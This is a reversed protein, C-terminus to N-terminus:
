AGAVNKPLDVTSETGDTWDEVTAEFKVESIGLIMKITYRKGADLSDFEVNHSIVNKVSSYTAALNADKTVVHYTVKVNFTVKAPATPTVPILTYYKSDKIVDVDADAGNDSSAEYIVGPVSSAPFSNGDGYLKTNINPNEITLGQEGTFAVVNEWKAKPASAPSGVPETNNLNLDGTENLDNSTIEVKEILIKTINDGGTEQERSGPTSADGAPVSNIAALARVRLQALAHYFYFHIPTGIAPKQLNLYPLYKTPTNTGGAVNNWTEGNSVGWVLDVQKTLDTSVKYSVKPDTTADNRTLATIGETASAVAGTSATAAVYPAYAFFSVKDVAYGQAPTPTQGDTNGSAIQNPWYKIPSYEWASANYLVKQNYMFNPEVSTNPTPYDGSTKYAFVGFGGGNAESQQLLTNNMEGYAGAKTLANGSYASFGVPADMEQTSVTEIKTCAVLVLAASAALIMIKKM